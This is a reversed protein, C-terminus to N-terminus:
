GDTQKAREPNIRQMITLSWPFSHFFSNQWCNCNSNIWSQFGTYSWHNVHDPPNGLRCINNLALLNGIQFWPEHPVSILLYESSVRKLETLATEPESIHELVETCLVLEFQGDDFPMNKISGNEFSCRETCVTKAYALADKSVDFLVFRAQPLQKLLLATNIGEGCGADLIRLPSWTQCRTVVLNVIEKQMRKVLLKKIPNTTQYKRLNGSTYDDETKKRSKIRMM